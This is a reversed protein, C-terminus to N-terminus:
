QKFETKEKSGQYGVTSIDYAFTCLFDGHAFTNPQHLVSLISYMIPNLELEM